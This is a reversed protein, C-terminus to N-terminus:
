SIWTRRKPRRSSDITVLLQVGASALYYSRTPGADVDLRPTAPGVDRGSDRAADVAPADTGADGGGSDPAGARADDGGCAALGLALSAAFGLRLSVVRELRVHTVARDPL